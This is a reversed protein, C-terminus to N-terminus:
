PQTEALKEAARKITKMVTEASTWEEPSEEKEPDPSYYELDWLVDWILRAQEQSAYQIRGVSELAEHVARFSKIFDPLTIENVATARIPWVLQAVGTQTPFPGLPAASM